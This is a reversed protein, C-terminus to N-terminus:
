GYRYIWGGDLSNMLVATGTASSVDLAIKGSYVKGPELDIAYPFQKDYPVCASSASTDVDVQATDKADFATWLDDTFGISKNALEEGTSYGLQARVTIVLLHGNKPKVKGECGRDVQISDVVFM